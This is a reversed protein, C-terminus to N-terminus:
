FAVRVLAQIADNNLSQNEAEVTRTYELNAGVRVREHPHDFAVGITHYQLDGQGQLEQDDNLDAFPDFSAFRYAPTIHVADTEITYSVQAHFARQQREARGEIPFTTNQSILEGYARLGLWLLELDLAFVRDEEVFQNPRDGETRDNLYGSVGLTLIDLFGVQGRAYFAVRNNDNFQANTGNGAAVMAWLGWYILGDDIVGPTSVMAGVQRSVDLGSLELGAGADIGDEGVARNVFTLRSTSMMSEATFPASFQGVQVGVWRVVDWRVYADRLAVDIDGEPTNVGRDEDVAGDVTIKFSFGDHSEGILGLRANAINFGNNRGIFDVNEDRTVHRYGVRLYGTPSFTWGEPAPEQEGLTEQASAPLSLAVLLVCFGFSQALASLPLRVHM